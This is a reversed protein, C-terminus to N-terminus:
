FGFGRIKMKYVISFMVVRIGSSPRTPKATM